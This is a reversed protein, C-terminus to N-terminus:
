FNPFFIPLLFPSSLLSLSFPFLFPLARLIVVFYPSLSITPFNVCLNNHNNKFFCLPLLIHCLYQPLSPSLSITLYLYLSLSIFIYLSLCLSIFIYRSFSLFFSISLYVYLSLSLDLSLSFYLCLTMTM